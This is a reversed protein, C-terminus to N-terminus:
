FLVGNPLNTADITTQEAGSGILSLPKGIIVGEAYTGAEVHIVDNNAAADVASQIKSYCGNSGAPNVCITKAAATQFFAGLLVVCGCSLTSCFRIPRVTTHEQDFPLPQNSPLDLHVAGSPGQKLVTSM